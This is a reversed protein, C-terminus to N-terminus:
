VIFVAASLDGLAQLTKGANGASVIALRVCGIQLAYIMAQQYQAAAHTPAKRGGIVGEAAAVYAKIGPHSKDCGSHLFDNLQAQAAAPNSFAMDYISWAQATRLRVDDSTQSYQQIANLLADTERQGDGKALGVFADALWADGLGVMDHLLAFLDKARKLEDEAVEFECRLTAIEAKIVACRAHIPQTIVENLQERLLLAYIQEIYVL